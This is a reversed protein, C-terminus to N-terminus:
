TFCLVASRWVICTMSGLYWNKPRVVMRFKYANERNAFGSVTGQTANITGFEPHFFPAVWVDPYIKRISWGSTVIHKAKVVLFASWIALWLNNVYM